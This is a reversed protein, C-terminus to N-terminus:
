NMFFTRVDQTHKRKKKHKNKKNKHEKEMGMEHVSVRMDQFSMM